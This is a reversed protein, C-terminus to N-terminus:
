LEIEGQNWARKLDLLRQEMKVEDRIEALKMGLGQNVCNKAIETLCDDVYERHRPELDTRYTEILVMRFGSLLLDAQTEQIRVLHREM